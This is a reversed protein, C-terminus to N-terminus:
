PRYRQAYRDAVYLAIAGSDAMQVPGDQLAPVKGMPSAAVFDPNARSAPDGLDIAVREYSLGAEELLWVARTARTRACWFLKM